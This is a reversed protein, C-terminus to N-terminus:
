VNSNPPPFFPLRFVLHHKPKPHHVHEIGSAALSSCPTPDLPCRPTCWLQGSPLLCLSVGTSDCGPWSLSGLLFGLDVPANPPVCQGYRAGWFACTHWMCPIKLNKKKLFLITGTSPSRCCDDLGVTRTQLKNKKKKKVSVNVTTLIFYLHLNCLVCRAERGM